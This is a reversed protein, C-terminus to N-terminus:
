KRTFNVQAKTRLILPQELKGQNLVSIQLKNNNNNNNEEYTPSSVKKSNEETRQVETSHRHLAEAKKIWNPYVVVESLFSVISLVM